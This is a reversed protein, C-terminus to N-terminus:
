NLSFRKGNVPSPLSVLRSYSWESSLKWNKSINKRREYEKECFELRNLVDSMRRRPIQLVISSVGIGGAWIGTALLEESSVGSFLQWALRGSIFLEFYLLVKFLHWYFNEM